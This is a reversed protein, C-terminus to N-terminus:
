QGHRPSSNGSASDSSLFYFLMLGVGMLTVPLPLAWFGREQAVVSLAIMSGAGFAALVLGVVLPARPDPPRRARIPPDIPLEPLPIGKDMAALREAHLIELRRQTARHKLYLYGLLGGVLAVVIIADGISAQNM